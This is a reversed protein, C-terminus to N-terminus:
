EVGVFEAETVGEDAAPTETDAPKEDEVAVARVLGQKKFICLYYATIRTPDQRTVLGLEKIDETLVEVTAPETRMELAEMVLAAQGKLNKTNERETRVFMTKAM